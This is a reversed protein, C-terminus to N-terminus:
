PQEIKIIQEIRNLRDDIMKQQEVNNKIVESQIKLQNNENGLTTAIQWSQMLVTALSFLLVVFGIALIGVVLTNYNNFTKQLTTVKEAFEKFRGRFEVFFDRAETQFDVIKISPKQAM